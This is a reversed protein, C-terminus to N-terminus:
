LKPCKKMREKSAKSHPNKRLLTKCCDCKNEETISYVCCIACYSMNEKDWVGVKKDLILPDKECLGRCTQM